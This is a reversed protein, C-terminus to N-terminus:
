TEWLCARSINSSSSQATSYMALLDADHASSPVTSSRPIPLSGTEKEDVDVKIFMLSNGAPKSNKCKNIGYFRFIPNDLDEPERHREVLCKVFSAAWGTMKVNTTRCVSTSEMGLSSAIKAAASSKMGIDSVNVFKLKKFCKLYSLGKDSIKNCSLDLEKLNLPGNGRTLSPLCLRRVALNTLRNDHLNLRELNPARGVERIVEHDDGLRCRSLDLETVHRVVVRMLPLNKDVMERGDRVALNELFANGYAEVFVAFAHALKRSDFSAGKSLVHHCLNEGVLSPLHVLSDVLEFNDAIFDMSIEYLSRLTGTSQKNAGEKCGGDVRVSKGARKTTPITCNEVDQMSCCLHRVKKVLRGREQVYVLEGYPQFDM